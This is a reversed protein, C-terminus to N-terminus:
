NLDHGPWLLEPKKQEIWKGLTMVAVSAEDAFDFNGTKRLETAIGRLELAKAELEAAISDILSAFPETTTQATM